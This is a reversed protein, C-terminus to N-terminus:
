TQNENKLQTSIEDINKKISEITQSISQMPEIIEGTREPHQQLFPPVQELTSIIRKLTTNEQKLHASLICMLCSEIQLKLKIIQPNNDFAELKILNRKLEVHLRSNDFSMSQSQRTANLQRPIEKQALAQQELTKLIAPIEMELKKLEQPTFPKPTEINSITLNPDM